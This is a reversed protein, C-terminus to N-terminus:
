PLSQIVLLIVAVTTSPAPAQQAEPPCDIIGAFASIGLMLTLLVAMSLHRLKRMPKTEQISLKVPRCRLVRSGAARIM